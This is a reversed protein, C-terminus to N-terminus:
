KQNMYLEVINELVDSISEIEEGNSILQTSIELAKMCHENCKKWQEPQQKSYAFALTSHSEAKSIHM